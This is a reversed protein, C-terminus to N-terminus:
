QLVRQVAEWHQLLVGVNIATCVLGWEARVQELGRRLFRRVGLTRKIHGFRPEVTERRRRYRARGERSKMRERMRERHDEYEDRNVIRGKAPDRCCMAAHSCELCSSCHYQTRKIAGGRSRNTSMRLVPLAFGAPCRYEDKEHVYVFAEKHIRQEGDRPLAAWQAESLTAGAQVAALAEAQEASPAANDSRTHIAAVYGTVKMAELKALEPGTNYQSDASAQEPLQGCTQQVQELMPTLQGSDETRDNVDDAVVMGSSTDVAMQANYNPKSRGEKDKMSRSDPDTVVAIAKPAENGGALSEDRRRAMADIARTLREQKRNARALQQAPSAARASWPIEDGLLGREKAENVAWEAEWAAIQQDLAALKQRISEEGQVSGRGADAEIKTGDVAVQELKILGARIGIEVTKRKIDRLRPAHRAVFAALTAHDPHQGNLLWIVDLRNYTAAELKRSSRLGNLMGYIYLMALDRPHYPPQGETLVYEREWTRFLEHFASSRLLLDMMRAPHDAPLADELRTPWLNIQDRPTEPMRFGAM